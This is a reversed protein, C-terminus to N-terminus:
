FESRSGGCGCALTLILSGRREHTSDGSEYRNLRRVRGGDELAHRVGDAVAAGIVGTVVAVGVGGEAEAAEGDDVYGAAVLGHGILVGGEEDNEVAFDEVVGVEAGGEFLGAVAVSSAGVGFGDEVGVLLEAGIADEAETAHEGKGDPILIGTLEETGAIAETLLGEVVVPVSTEEGEGALDFREEFVGGNRGIEVFGEKGFVEGESIDAIVAREEAADALEHGAVVEELKHLRRGAIVVRCGERALAEARIAHRRILAPTAQSGAHPLHIGLQM